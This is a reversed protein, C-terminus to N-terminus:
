IMPRLARVCLLKYLGLNYQRDKVKWTHGAGDVIVDNRQPEGFVELAAGAIYYFRQNEYVDPVGELNVQKDLLNEEPVAQLSAETTGRRYTVTEGFDAFLLDIDNIIQDKLGM